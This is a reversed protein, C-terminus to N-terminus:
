PDNCWRNLDRPLAAPGCSREELTALRAIASEGPPASGSESGTRPALGIGQGAM